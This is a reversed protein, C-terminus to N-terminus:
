KLMKGRYRFVDSHVGKEKLTLCLSIERLGHEENKTNAVAM